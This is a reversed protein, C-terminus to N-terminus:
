KQAETMFKDHPFRPQGRALERALEGAFWGRADTGMVGVTDIKSIAEAVTLLAKKSLKITM